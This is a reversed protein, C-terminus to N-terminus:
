DSLIPTFGPTRIPPDLPRLSGVVDEGRMFLKQLPATDGFETACGETKAWALFEARLKDRLDDGEKNQPILMNEEVWTPLMGDKFVVLETGKVYRAAQASMTIWQAVQRGVQTRLNEVATPTAIPMQIGTAKICKLIDRILEASPKFDLM